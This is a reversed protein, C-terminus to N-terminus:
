VSQAPARTGASSCVAIVPMAFFFAEVVVLDLSRPRCSQPRM